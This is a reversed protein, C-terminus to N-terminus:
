QTRWVKQLVRETLESVRERDPQVDVLGDPDVDRDLEAEIWSDLTDSDVDQQGNGNRKFTALGEISGFLVTDSGISNATLELENEHSRKQAWDFLSDFDIPPVDTTEEVYRASLLAQVINCYRKVTRKTETQELLGADALEDSDFRGACGRVVSEVMVSTTEPGIDTHEQSVSASEIAEEAMTQSPLYAPDCYDHLDSYSASSALKYGEEIYKGYNAAALSRNHQVLAYPKCRSVAHTCLGLVSNVATDHVFYEEDSRCVDIATPNSGLIGDSGVLKKIDWGHFEIERELANSDQRVTADITDRNQGPIVYSEPQQVYVVLVDYDSSGSDLGTARSGYDRALIPTVDNRRAVTDLHSQITEREHETPM